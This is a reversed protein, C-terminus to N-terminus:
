QASRWWLDATKARIRTIDPDNPRLAAYRGYAAAAEPSRGLHELSIGLAYFPEPATPAQATARQLEVVADEERGAKRLALGLNYLSRADTPALDVAHRYADVARPWDDIKGLAVGLNFHYVPEKPKLMIAQEFSPIAEAHRGLQVLVQGINNLAGADRPDRSLAQRYRVLAAQLNGVEYAVTGTGHEGLTDAAAPGDEATATRVSPATTQNLTDARVVAPSATPASPRDVLRALGALAIIALSACVGALVVRRSGIAASGPQTGPATALDPRAPPIARDCRLCRPRAFAMRAGCHPCVLMQAM